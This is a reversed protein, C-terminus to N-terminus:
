DKEEKKKNDRTILQHCKELRIRYIIHDFILFSTVFIVLLNILRHGM